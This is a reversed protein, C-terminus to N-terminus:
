AGQALRRPRTERVPRWLRGRVAVLMGEEHDSQELARVRAADADAADVVGLLRWTERELEPSEDQRLVVFTATSSLDEDRRPDPLELRGM